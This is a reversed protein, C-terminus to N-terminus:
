DKNRLRRILEAKAGEENSDVSFLFGINKEHSKDILKIILDLNQNQLNTFNNVDEEIKKHSSSNIYNTFKGILGVVVDSAQIFKNCKSDIFSYNLIDEGNDMIKFNTFIDAISSENDFIHTSTKYMYVPRMYFLSFDKLLIHDEEDMVFPLSGKRTSEKLIQRLSELSFHYEATGIYSLFLLM